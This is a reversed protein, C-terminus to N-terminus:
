HKIDQLYNKGTIPDKGTQDKLEKRAKFAVWGGDKSAKKLQKKWDANRSQTIDTTAQEALMTLILEMPTMADRLNWINMNKHEKWEKNTMGAYAKYIENTLIGYSKDWWRKDREQTLWTRVPIGRVRIDIWDKPYWKKAYTDIMRKMSLEPDEIEQIREYWVKALRKKFPEAKPSPISQIIRFVWETNSSNIKRKKGDKATMELLTCITGWNNWLESDRTRMKKIYQKPDTSDTLIYIIDEVSFRWEDSHLTKRIEKWQFIAIKQSQQISKTM